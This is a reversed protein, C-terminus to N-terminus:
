SAKLASLLEPLLSQDDATSSDPTKESSAKKTDSNSETSGTLEELSSISVSVADCLAKADVVARIRNLLEKLRLYVHMRNRPNQRTFHLWNLYLMKRRIRKLESAYGLSKM